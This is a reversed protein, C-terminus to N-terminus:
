ACAWAPRLVGFLVGFHAPQVGRLREVLGVLAPGRRQAAARDDVLREAAGFRVVEGLQHRADALDGGRQVDVLLLEAFQDAVEVREEAGEGGLRRAQAGGDGLQGARQVAISRPRAASSAENGGVRVKACAMMGPTLCVGAVTAAASGHISCTCAESAGLSSPRRRWPGRRPSATARSSAPRVPARGAAPSRNLLHRVFTNKGAPCCWAGPRRSCRRADLVVLLEPVPQDPQAADALAEVAVARRGVEHEASLPWVSDAGAVEIRPVCHRLAQPQEGREGSGGSPM